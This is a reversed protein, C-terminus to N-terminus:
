GFVEACLKLTQSTPRMTLTPIKSWYRIDPLTDVLDLKLELLYLSVFFKFWFSVSLIEFDMVKVELDSIHTMIAYCLVESWFRVDPLTDVLGM